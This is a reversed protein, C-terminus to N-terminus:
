SAPSRHDLLADPLDMLVPGETWLLACRVQRDPWIRRLLIRYAAMQRLYVPPAEVASDPVPRLTKYDVALVTTATVVLRDIQGAITEPGDVGEVTGVLPAEARSGAGFIPAFETHELIELVEAALAERAAQDLEHAPRALFRACADPRAAPPLEPLLELLRHVLLGRRFRRGDDGGLPSRAPPAAGSPRSPALPRPPPPERAPPRRAWDPPTEHRSSSEVTEPVSDPAATQLTEVVLGDGRWGDPSLTTFDFSRREALPAIGDAVLNYWCDAPPEYRGAAGSVHLQDEARTMAVYLLRNYEAEQRAVAAASATRSVSSELARRPAWVPVGDIWHLNAVRDPKRTTDALIVIPAQLGKAGHVTMVRVEDRGGQELDRKVETAGAGVWHMFGQLAPSNTREFGVALGLFEDIPDEAETGLRAILAARGSEGSLTPQNLVEAFLEYPPIFDVRALWRGLWNRADADAPAASEGLSRWLSRDGRDWALRLLDDDDFGIFPGKLVNALTLDDEPLLLFEAFAMLDMVALQDTLVLRDVGAVPVGLRKLARVLQDVFRTRRRVLVMIDGAAVRRGRSSLREHGIWSDIRAAMVRALRADPDDIPRRELPLTWPAREAPAEPEVLPWVEVRGGAGQRHVDHSLTAGEAVVGRAAAPRAFTADVAELVAAASRFSTELSIERWKDSGIRDRFHNRLAEGVAPDARQFSFISQKEDGVAFLTRETDERAGEGAFFEEALARVIEWQEPNTDQSEDILIHDLGGDLKFLVWPAMARDVLLDRARYILDDYDLCSQATKAAQYAELMMAGLRLLAATGRASSIARLNEVVAALRDAEAQLIDTCDPFQEVVKKTALSKRPTQEKKLLYVDLYDDFSRMRAEVDGTLWAAIREARPQDTKETGHRLGEVARHLAEADFAGDGAAARIVAAADSDPDVQFTRYVAAEAGALGGRDRLLRALRGREQALDTMLSSFQDEQLHAIIEALAIGLEENRRAAMLVADRATRMLEAASREDMVKTQPALGAELPFRTLLSECFGHITQIKLGGPTDLVQAFLRRAAALAAEDVTDGTLEVLRGRLEEEPLISWLSLEGSIRNAMEAAAAKTFTLCLIREPPTDGLLLTLVRDTLVKTKGSGASASVWVSVAPDAAARQAIGPDAHPAASM